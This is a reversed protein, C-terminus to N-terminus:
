DSRYVVLCRCWPAAAAAAAAFPPQRAPEHNLPNGKQTARRAGLGRPNPLKVALVRRRASLKGRTQRSHKEVSPM